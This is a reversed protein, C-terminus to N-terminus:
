VLDCNKCLHDSDAYTKQWYIRGCTDCSRLEWDPLSRFNTKRERILRVDIGMMLGKQSRQRGRNATQQESLIAEMEGYTIPEEGEVLDDNYDAVMDIIDWTTM